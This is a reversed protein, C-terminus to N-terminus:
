SWRIMSCAVFVQGGLERYYTAPDAMIALDEREPTRGTTDRLWPVRIQAFSHRQEDSAPSIRLMSM